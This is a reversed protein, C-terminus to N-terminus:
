EVLEKLSIVRPEILRLVPLARAAINEDTQGAFRKMEVRLAAVPDGNRDRIPFVAVSRGDAKGAYIEATALTEQEFKGAPRGLDGDDSSAVCHLDSRASTTAFIKVALLREYRKMAEAVLEKALTLRPRYEIRLDSFYSVADSKTWLGIKGEAFSNDTLEPLIQRGNFAVTFRNGRATVSLEHWQGRPVAIEPGLPADRVGNAVRYFRVNGGLSSARVVYFNREDQVRFVVGAMQELVGSVTKFRVSLVFDGFVQDDLILLPFREDTPDKAVQAIVRRRATQPAEPTLPVFDPTAEDEIVQWQGPRGQGALASRWGRPPEGLKERTLDLTWKGRYGPAAANTAAASPSGDQSRALPAALTGLGLLFSFFWRSM